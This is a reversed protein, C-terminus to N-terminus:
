EINKEKAEIYNRQIISDLTKNHMIIIQEHLKMLEDYKTKHYEIEKELSKIHEKLLPFQAIVRQFHDYSESTFEETIKDTAEEDNQHREIILDFVDESFSKDENILNQVYRQATRVHVNLTAAIDSTTYKKM